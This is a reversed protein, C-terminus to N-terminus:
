KKKSDSEGTRWPVYVNHYIGLIMAGWLLLNAAIFIALSTWRGIAGFPSAAIGIFVLPIASMVM